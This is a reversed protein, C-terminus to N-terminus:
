AEIQMPAVLAKGYIQEIIDDFNDSGNNKDLLLQKECIMIKLKYICLIAFDFDHGVALDDLEAWRMKDLLNEMELPTSKNFAEQVGKSIESFFDNEQRLFKEGEAGKGKSRLQVLANRLCTEWDYWASVTKTKGAYQEPPILSLEQLEAMEKVSLFDTCAAM